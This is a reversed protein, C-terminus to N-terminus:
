SGAEPLSHISPKGFLFPPFPNRLTDFLDRKPLAECKAFIPLQFHHLCLESRVQGDPCNKMAEHSKNCPFLGKCSAVAFPRLSRLGFSRILVESHCAHTAQISRASCVKPVSFKRRCIM